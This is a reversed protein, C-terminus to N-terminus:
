LPHVIEAIGSIIFQMAIALVIIPMLKTIVRLGEEGILGTIRPAYARTRTSAPNMVATISTVAVVAFELLEM